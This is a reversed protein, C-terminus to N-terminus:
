TPQLVYGTLDIERHALLHAAIDEVSSAHVKLLHWARQHGQKRLADAEDRDELLEIVKDHDKSDAFEHPAPADFLEVADMGAVCIAIHDVLSLADAGAVQTNGSSDERFIEGRAVNLGLALAVVAHGAEHYAVGRLGDDTM